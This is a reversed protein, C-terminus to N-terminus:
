SKKSAKAGSMKTSDSFLRASLMEILGPRKGVKKVLKDDYGLKRANHQVVHSTLAYGAMDGGESDERNSATITLKSVAGIGDRVGESLQPRFWNRVLKDEILGVPRNVEHKNPLIGYKGKGLKWQWEKRKVTDVKVLSSRMLNGGKKSVNWLEVVVEKDSPKKEGTDPDTVEVAYAIERMYSRTGADRYTREAIIDNTKGVIKNLHKVAAITGEPNHMIATLDVSAAGDSHRLDDAAALAKIFNDTADKRKKLTENVTANIKTEAEDFVKQVGEFKDKLHSRLVQGPDIMFDGGMNKYPKIRAAERDTIEIFKDMGHKVLIQYVKEIPVDDIFRTKDRTEAPGWDDEAIAEAAADRMQEDFDKGISEEVRRRADLVKQKPAESKSEVAGAVNPVEKGKYLRRRMTEAEDPDDQAVLLEPAVNLEPKQNAGLYREAEEVPSYKPKEVETSEPPDVAGEPPAAEATRPM